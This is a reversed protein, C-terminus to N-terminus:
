IYSEQYSLSSALVCMGEGSDLKTEIIERGLKAADDENGKSSKAAGSYCCDLIVIIRTSKSEHMMETLDDFSYGNVFPRKPDM